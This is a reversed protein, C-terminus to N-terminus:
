GEPDLGAAVRTLDEALATLRRGTRDVAAAAVPDPTVVEVAEGAGVLDARAMELDAAGGVACWGLAAAGLATGTVDGVVLVRRDLGAALVQRWLPHRLAGGSARVEGVGGVGTVAEVRRVLASIQLGVGEVAARAVHAPGHHHCLGLLAGAREPEWLPSREPALFPVVVLGDAGPAVAGAADLLDDLGAGGAVTRAVWDLVSGGNGLACGVVWRDLALPYCFLSGDSGTLPRHVVARVAVSTGVTVALAGPGTAGVGLNSVPGDAAGLVVPLGAALGLETALHPRLGVVETPRRVRPLCAADIGAAALAEADWTGTELSCLGTGGASSRETVVEGTLWWLVWDKLGLWRDVRAVVEPHHRSWWALKARPTMPHHPTGTRRPLDGGPDAARHALVEAIAREDAWTVLPTCPVMAEDVGVLAHMATTVSLAAVEVDAGFRVRTTALCRRLAESAATLVADPDQESRGPAPHHTVLSATAVVPPPAEGAPGVVAFAVAKVETTGVDLAVM